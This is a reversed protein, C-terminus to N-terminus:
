RRKNTTEYIIGSRISILIFQQDTEVWHNGRGPNRLHAERWNKVVYRDRQYERDLRQGRNWNQSYKHQNQPVTLSFQGTQISVLALDDDGNRVWHYGRPPAKLQRQRWDQVVYRDQRYHQPLRAITTTGTGATTPPQM